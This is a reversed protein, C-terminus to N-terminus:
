PLLNAPSNADAVLAFKLEDPDNVEKLEATNLRRKV